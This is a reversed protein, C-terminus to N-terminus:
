PWPATLRHHVNGAYWSAAHDMHQWAAAGSCMKGGEGWLGVVGGLM